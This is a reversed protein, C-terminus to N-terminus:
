GKIVPHFLPFKGIPIEYREEIAEGWNGWGNVNVFIWNEQFCRSFRGIFSSFRTNKKRNFHESLSSFSERHSNMQM